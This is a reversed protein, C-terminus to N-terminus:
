LISWEDNAKRFVNMLFSTHTDSLTRTYRILVATGLGEPGADVTTISRGRGRFIPRQILM